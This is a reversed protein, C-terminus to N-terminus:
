LQGSAKSADVWKKMADCSKYEDDVMIYYTDIKKNFWDELVGEKKLELARQAIRSYDDKMNERHPETRTKLYLIRVGKKGREDAIETPQSYHGPTLDKLLPIMDKDLQDITLFGGDKGQLMGGTFKSGEDDSYRSVASGFDITGSILNARVSDLKDLGEKMEIQTVQPIKLIHMVVADDGNKSIMKIIHYGFKSKFPNSIQGDKLTFAKNLWTADLEKSNRNIQYQGYNQKVGPDESNVIALAKFDKGAEAQKKYDTLQQVAYEEADRSAKPYIVIQGLELESEYYALSDTPIKDFYNKVENPTIKVDGVIKDRMAAALKRDRFGERFDEKLQYVTRGAVKELEEKSGYSQIFGRIQNDIDAEVEEDTVPLSDKEAQLVLAKIGMAQELTLCRANPPVEVGQRQMDAIQNDIDSKLVIKDGVIGLIKDAIVKKPQAFAAIFIGLLFATLLIKNRIMIHQLFFQEKQTALNLATHVAVPKKIKM